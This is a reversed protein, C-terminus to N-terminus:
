AIGARLCDHMHVFGVPRDVEDVVFLSTIAQRNMLGLADAALAGATITKPNRRMVTQVAHGLLSDGM